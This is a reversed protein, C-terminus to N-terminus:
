TYLFVVVLTDSSPKLNSGAATWSITTGSRSVFHATKDAELAIGFECTSKGDIDALTSSSSAGASVTNQYRLRTIRDITDLKVNGSADFTKLGYDSM